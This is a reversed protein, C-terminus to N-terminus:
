EESHGKVVYEEVMVEMNKVVDAICLKSEFLDLNRLTWIAYFLSPLIASQVREEIIAKGPGSKVEM